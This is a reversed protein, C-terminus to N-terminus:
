ATLKMAFDEALAVRDVDVDVSFGRAKLHRVLVGSALNGAAGPAYPCGGLGGAASDFVRIGRRLGVDVNDLAKGYTDHFHCAIVGSPLEELLTGLMTDVDGPSATGITDAVAIEHCGMAFLKRAIHAVNNPDIHGEYPCNVACSIYGRVPVDHDRALALIEEFRAFGEAISCNTNKRSFTESASSFLAIEDAGHEIAANAGKANPVLVSYATGPKQKVTAMVAEHDAMQPVWKPSVFATAEIRKFGADSLMEILKVKDETSILRKENQLGDRPGVEVISVLDDTM